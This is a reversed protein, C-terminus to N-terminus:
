CDTSLTYGYEYLRLGNHNNYFGIKFWGIYWNNQEKFKFAFYKNDITWWIGRDEYFGDEWSRDLFYFSGSKFNYDCKILDGPEFISPHDYYDECGIYFNDSLSIVRFSIYGQESDDRSGFSFALDSIGNENIDLELDQDFDEMLSNPLTTDPSFDYFVFNGNEIVTGAYLFENNNFIDDKNCSQSLNLVFLSLLIIVVKKMNYFTKYAILIM